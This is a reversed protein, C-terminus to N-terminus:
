CCKTRYVWDYAPVQGVVIIERTIGDAQLQSALTETGQKLISASDLKGSGSLKYGSADILYADWAAALM